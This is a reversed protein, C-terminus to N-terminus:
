LLNVLLAVWLSLFIMPVGVVAANGLWRIVPTSHVPLDPTEFQACQKHLGNLALVAGALSLLMVLVTGIGALPLLQSLLRHVAEYRTAHFQVPANLSVAFGTVLFAQSGVLASLRHNILNNEHEIRQRLFQLEANM